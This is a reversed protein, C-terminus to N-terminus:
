TSTHMGSTSIKCVSIEEMRVSVFKPSSFTPIGRSEAESIQHELMAHDIYGCM